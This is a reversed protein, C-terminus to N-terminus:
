ETRSVFSFLRVRQSLQGSLGSLCGRKWIGDHADGRYTWYQREAKDTKYNSSFLYAFTESIDSTQERTFGAAAMLVGVAYNSAHKYVPYYTNSAEDRQYDFRGFHGADQNIQVRYNDPQGCCVCRSLTGTASGHAKRNSFSTTL